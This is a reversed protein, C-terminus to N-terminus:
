GGDGGGTAEPPLRDIMRGVLYRILAIDLSPATSTVVIVVRGARVHVVDFGFDMTSDDPSVDGMTFPIAIRIAATDDGLQEIEAPEGRPEAVAADPFVTQENYPAVETAASEAYCGPAEPMRVVDMLHEADAVSPAFVVSASLGGELSAHYSPAHAVPVGDEILPTGLCAGVEDFREPRGPQIVGSPLRETEWDPLDEPSLVAVEAAAQDARPDVPAATTTEEDTAEGPGEGGAAEPPVRDIMRGIVYRSLTPDVDVPSEFFTVIVVRGVRVYVIDLFIDVPPREGDTWSVVVRLAATDDGFEEFDRREARPEGAEADPHVPHPGSRDVEGSVSEAYCGPTEPMRVVDMLHEADSVSPTFIASAALTGDAFSTYSPAHADAYGDEILPTGLCDGVEDFREPRGAVAPGGALGTSMDPVDDASLVVAEAAAQEAQPDLPVTTTAAEDSGAQNGDDGQEGCGAGLTALLTAAVALGTARRRTRGPATTRMM